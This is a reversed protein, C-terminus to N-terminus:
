LFFFLALLIAPVLVATLIVSIVLTKASVTKKKSKVFAKLEKTQEAISAYAQANKKLAEQLSQQNGLIKQLRSEENYIIRLSEIITSKGANTEGFFSICFKDWETSQELEEIEKKFNENIKALQTKINEAFANEEENNYTEAFSDQVAQSIVEKVESYHQEIKQKDM